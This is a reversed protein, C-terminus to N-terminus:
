EINSTPREARLARIGWWGPLLIVATAMNVVIGTACVMGMSAMAENSAFSLSGFGIATSAGCFMIAKGTGHWAHKFDGGTRRLALLMHIGYDVSTGLLLPIAAVNLFNWQLGVAAMLGCLVLGSFGMAAVVLLVEKFRRFVIALMVVMVLGMPLFVGYLDKKVLPLVAPRLAEWGALAVGEDQIERLRPDDMGEVSPRVDGLMVTGSDSEVLFGRMAETAARTRPFAVGDGQALVGLQEMVAKGLATGQENFGVTDANEL